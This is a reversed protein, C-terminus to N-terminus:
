VNKAYATLFDLEGRASIWYFVIRAGGSKGKGGGAVRGKRVSGGGPIV